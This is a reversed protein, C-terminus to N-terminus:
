VKFFSEWDEKAFDYKCSDYINLCRRGNLSKTPLIYWTDEPMIYLAFVDVSTDKYRKKDRGRKLSFQYVELPSGRHKNKTTKKSTAKIQVRLLKEGTDVICDYVQQGHPTSVILGKRTAELKFALESCEGLHNADM